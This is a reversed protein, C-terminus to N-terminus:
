GIERETIFEELCTFEDNLTQYRMKGAKRILNLLTDRASLEKENYWIPHTLIHLQPFDGSCIIEDINERWHRRSDSVYKFEQFFKKSYSNIIGHIRYDAELTKNTPRHMSVSNIEMDLLRGMCETEAAIAASIENEKAGALYREDFHLGIDHGMEHIQHIIESNKKSFPNYFDSRALIFYTSHVELEREMRAFELAKELDNDVDHRLVCIKGHYTEQYPSIQYENKRLLDLMRGYSAYSFEM